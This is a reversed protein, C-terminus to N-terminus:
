MNVFRKLSLRIAEANRIGDNYQRRRDRREREYALIAELMGDQDLYDDRNMQCINRM